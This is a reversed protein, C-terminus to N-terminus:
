DNKNSNFKARRKKLYNIILLRENTDMGLLVFYFSVAIVSTVGVVFFRLLQGEIMFHPVSVTGVAFLTVLLMRGFIELIYNWCSMGTLRVLILFRSMLSVFSIALGVYFASEPGYGMTLIIWSIPWVLIRMGSGVIEFVAIKGVAQAGYVIPHSFTNILATIMVLKTFVIAYQPVNHLWIGLIFDIEFYLPLAIFLVLFYGFKSTRKLLKFFEERNGAAWHKVIQPRVATLFSQTFGFVGNMVQSSVGRSANVVPGFFSNLLLDVFTESSSWACSGVMQLCNFSFIKNIMTKDYHWKFKCVPYKRTAFYYNLFTYMGEAVMWLVGYLILGDVSKIFLVACAVILKMIYESISLWSFLMMNEYSIILASYPISFWHVILTVVTFQFFAKAAFLREPPLVLKNRMYWIGVSELLLFVVLAMVVYLILITSFTKQLGKLDDRGLDYSFFRSCASSLPISVFVFMLVVGGIACTIGYDVVGLAQLIIRTAFFSVFMCFLMRGYLLITNKAIRLNNNGGSM